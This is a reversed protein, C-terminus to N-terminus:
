EYESPCMEIQIFIVGQFSAIMSVLAKLNSIIYELRHTLTMIMISYELQAHQQGSVKVTKNNM